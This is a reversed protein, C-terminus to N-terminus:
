ASPVTPTPEEKEEPRQEAEPVDTMADDEGSHLARLMGEMDREKITRAPRVLIYLLFGVLPLLAVIAVCFFQYPFSRTRLLIDRVTYFLLFLLLSVGLAIGAQSLRLMPDDTFFSVVANVPFQVPM